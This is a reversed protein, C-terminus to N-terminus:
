ASDWLRSRPVGERHDASPAGECSAGQRLGEELVGAKPRGCVEGQRGWGGWM